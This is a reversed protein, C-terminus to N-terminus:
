STLIQPHNPLSDLLARAFHFLSFCEAPRGAYAYNTMGGRTVGIFSPVVLKVGPAELNILSIEIYRGIDSNVPIIYAKREFLANNNPTFLYSRSVVWPYCNAQGNASPSRM